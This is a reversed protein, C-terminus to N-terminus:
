GARRKRQQKRAWLVAAVLMFSPLASAVFGWHAGMLVELKQLQLLLIGAGAYGLIKLSKQVTVLIGFVAATKEPGAAKQLRTNLMANMFTVVMGFVVQVGLILKLDPGLTGKLLAAVGDFLLLWALLSLKGNNLAAKLNPIRQLSFAMLGGVAMASFMYSTAEVTKWGNEEAFPLNLGGQFASITNMAWYTICLTAILKDSFLVDWEANKLTDLIGVKKQVVPAVSVTDGIEKEALSGQATKTKTSTIRPQELAKRTKIWLVLAIITVAVDVWFCLFANYNATVLGSLGLAVTFLVWKLTENTLNYNLLQDEDVQESIWQRYAPQALTDLWAMIGMVIFFVVINHMIALWIIALINLILIAGSMQPAKVKALVRLTFPSMLLPVVAKTLPAWFWTTADGTLQIYLAMSAVFTFFSGFSSISEIILINWIRRPLASASIAPNSM